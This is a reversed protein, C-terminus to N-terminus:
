AAGIGRDERFSSANKTLFQDFSIPKRRLIQEVAPSVEVVRGAKSVEFLELLAKVMWAPLGAKVMSQEAQKEDVDVYRVNRGLATSFKSAIDHNSLAEGGTIVYKKHEHGRQTLAVVAVAAIDRADVVSVKGDGQPLYFAGDRKISEVNALYSQMFTNPQLITYSIGSAEIAKEVDRHWRWMTIGDESAGMASSRVIHRVGAEKAAEVANIGLQVLKEVFPTVSFFQEVGEFASALSDPNAMDGAVQEIGLRDWTPNPKVSRVLVRVSIKKEALEEAVYNGINGGTVLIRAM